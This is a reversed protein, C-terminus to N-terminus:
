GRMLPGHKLLNHVTKLKRLTHSVLVDGTKKPHHVLQHLSQQLCVLKTENSFSQTSFM